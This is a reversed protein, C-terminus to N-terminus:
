EFAGGIGQLNINATVGSKKVLKFKLNIGANTATKTKNLFTHPNGSIVESLVDEWVPATDYANNCVKIYSNSQDINEYGNWLALLVIKTALIDTKIINTLSDSQMTTENKIFTFELSNAAGISDQITLRIKHSGNKITLWKSLSVSYSNTNNSVNTKSDILIDDLFVSLNMNTDNEVDNINFSLAPPINSLTGLNTTSSSITPPTNTRVFTYYQYVIQGQNNNVSITITNKTNLPLSYLQDKSINITLTQGKPANSINRIQNGNLYEIVTLSDSSILSDVTYNISFGSNKNGLDITGGTSGNITPPQSFWDAPITTSGTSGNISIRFNYHALSTGWTIGIIYDNSMCIKKGIDNISLPIEFYCSALSCNKSFVIKTNQTYCDVNNLTYKLNGSLNLDYIYHYSRPVFEAYFKIKNDEFKQSVNVINYDSSDNLKYISLINNYAM